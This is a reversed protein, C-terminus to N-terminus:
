LQTYVYMHEYFQYKCLINHIFISKASFHKMERIQFLKQKDKSNGNEETFM